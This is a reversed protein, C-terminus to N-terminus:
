PDVEAPPLVHEAEWSKFNDDSEVIQGTGDAMGYVRASKGSPATWIQRDRMVAVLQPPIGKLNDLTGQYIYDFQNTGTLTMGGHQIYSAVQDTSTPFHGQHESAYEIAGMGLAMVDRTRSGALEHLQKWYEETHPPGTRAPPHVRAQLNRQIKQVLDNTKQHLAAVKQRLQALENLPNNTSSQAAPRNSFGHQEALLAAIQEGQQRIAVEKERALREAHYHLWGTAALGILVLGIIATYAIRNM